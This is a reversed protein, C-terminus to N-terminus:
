RIDIRRPKEAEAKPVRISLVGEDYSADCSDQDVEGPLVVEYRFRGVTRTTRRLAGTREKEKREGSVVLRRGSLEIDVDSRKVGPLEIDVVFADETEELDASPIFGEGGFADGPFSRLMRDFEDRLRDIDGFPSWTTMGERNRVPLAM